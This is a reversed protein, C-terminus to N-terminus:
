VREAGIWISRWRKLSILVNNSIVFFRMAAHQQGEDASDHSSCIFSDLSLSHAQHAANNRRLCKPIHEQTHLLVFKNLQHTDPARTKRSRARTLISLVAM